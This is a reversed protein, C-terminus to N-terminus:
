GAALQRLAARAALLSRAQDAWPQMAKKAPPPLKELFTLSLEVDGADLARRGREIEAEAADGWVVQEGRRVTVLGGLRTMASDVVGSKSGDPKMAADSAARAKKAAEEFSLRLSAETPPAV